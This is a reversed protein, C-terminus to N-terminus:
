LKMKRNKGSFSAKRNRNNYAMKRNQGSFSTKRKNGSPTPDPTVVVSETPNSIYTEISGDFYQHATYGEAIWHYIM